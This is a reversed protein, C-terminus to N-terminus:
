VCTYTNSMADFLASCIVVPWNLSEDGTQDGSPVFIANTLVRTPGSGSRWTFESM